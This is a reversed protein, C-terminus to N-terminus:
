QQIETLSYALLKSNRNDEKKNVYMNQASFILKMFFQICLKFACVTAHDM